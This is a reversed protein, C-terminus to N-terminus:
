FNNGSKREKPLDPAGPLGSIKKKTNQGSIREKKMIVSGVKSM